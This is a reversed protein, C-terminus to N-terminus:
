GLQFHAITLSRGTNDNAYTRVTYIVYYITWFRDHETELMEVETQTYIEM